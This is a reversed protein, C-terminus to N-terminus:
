KASPLGAASAQEKASGAVTEPYGTETEIGYLRFFAIEDDSLRYETRCNGCIKRVLRQALVAVLATSLLFLTSRSIWCDRFRQLPM